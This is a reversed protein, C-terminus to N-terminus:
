VRASRSPMFLLGPPMLNLYLILIGSLCIMFFRGMPSLCHRWERMTSIRTRNGSPRDPLPKSEPFGTISCSIFLGTTYHCCLPSGVGRSGTRNRVPRSAHLCSFVAGYALPLAAVRELHLRPNSERQPSGPLFHRGRQACSRSTLTAQLAMRSPEIGDTCKKGSSVPGPDTSGSTRGLCFYSQNSIKAPKLIIVKCSCPKRMVINVAFGPSEPARAKHENKGPVVDPFGNKRFPLDM